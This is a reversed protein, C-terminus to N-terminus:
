SHNLFFLFVGWQKGCVGAAGAVPAQGLGSQKALFLQQIESWAASITYRKDLALLLVYMGINSYFDLISFLCLVKLIIM